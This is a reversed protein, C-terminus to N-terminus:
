TALMKEYGRYESLKPESVRAIERHFWEHFREVRTQYDKFLEEVDIGNPYRNIFVRAKGWKGWQLLVDQRLLFQTRRETASLSRQWDAEIMRYHSVYQRLQQIFQHEEAFIESVKVGYDVVPIKGRIRRSADVLALASTAATFVGRRVALERRNFRSRAPRSWFETLQVEIRFAETSQFLESVADLFLDLSLQLACL